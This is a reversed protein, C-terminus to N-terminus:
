MTESCVSLSYSCIKASWMSICSRNKEFMKKGIRQVSRVAIGYLLNEAPPSPGAFGMCLHSIYLM